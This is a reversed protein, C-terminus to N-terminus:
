ACAISDSVNLIEKICVNRINKNLDAQSAILNRSIIHMPNRAFWRRNYLSFYVMFTQQLYQGDPDLDCHFM